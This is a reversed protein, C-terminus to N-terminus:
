FGWPRVRSPTIRLMVRDIGAIRQEMAEPLVPGLYREAIVRM